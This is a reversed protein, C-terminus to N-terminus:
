KIQTARPLVSSCGWRRLTAATEMVGPKPTAIGPLHSGDHLKLYGTFKRSLRTVWSAGQQEEWQQHLRPMALMTRIHDRKLMGM